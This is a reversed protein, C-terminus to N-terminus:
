IKKLPMPTAGIAAVCSAAVWEEYAANAKAEFRMVCPTEYPHIALIAQELAQELDLRTKLISVWEGDQQVAGEWWYASEMPFINACAILRQGLLASTIRKACDADPHTVYFISIMAHM